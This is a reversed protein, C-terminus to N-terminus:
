CRERLEMGLLGILLMVHKAVLGRMRTCYGVKVM